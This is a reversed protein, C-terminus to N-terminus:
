DMYKKVVSTFFNAVLVTNLSVQITSLIASIGQPTIDSVSTGIIQLISYYIATLLSLGHQLTEANDSFLCSPSTYIFTFIISILAFYVLWRFPKYYGGTLFIFLKRLGSNSYLMRKYKLNSKENQRYEFDCNNLLADITDLMHTKNSITRIPEDSNFALYWKESPCSKKFFYKYLTINAENLQSITIKNDHLNSASISIKNIHNKYTTLHPVDSDYFYLEFIKCWTIKLMNLRNVSFLLEKINCSDVKVSSCRSCCLKGSFICNTFEVNTVEFCSVDAEIYCNIFEVRNTSKIEINTKIHRNSFVLENYRKLELTNGTSTLRGDHLIRLDILQDLEDFDYFMSFPLAMVNSLQTLTKVNHEHILEKLSRQIIYDDCDMGGNEKIIRKHLESDTIHYNKDRWTITTAANADAIYLAQLLMYVTITYEADYSICLNVWGKSDINSEIELVANYKALEARPLSNYVSKPTYIEISQNCDM